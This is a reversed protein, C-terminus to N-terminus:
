LMMHMMGKLHTEHVVGVCDYRADRGWTLRSCGSLKLM